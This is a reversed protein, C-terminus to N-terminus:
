APGTEGYACDAESVGGEAGLTTGIRTHLLGGIDRCQIYAHLGEGVGPPCSLTSRNPVSNDTSCEAPAPDAAATKTGPMGLVSGLVSAGLAATVALKGICNM